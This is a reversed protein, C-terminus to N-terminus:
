EGFPITLHNGKLPPTGLSRVTAQERILDFTTAGIVV